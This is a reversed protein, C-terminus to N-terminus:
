KNEETAIDLVKKKEGRNSNRNKWRIPIERVNDLVTDRIEMKQSETTRNSPDM